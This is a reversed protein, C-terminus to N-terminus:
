KLYDVATISKSINKISAVVEQHYPNVSYAALDELNKFQSVVVIDSSRETELINIGVEYFQIEAIKSPLEELSNKIAYLADIKQQKEPFENLKIMVIHHIM